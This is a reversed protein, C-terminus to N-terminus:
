VELDGQEEQQDEVAVQNSVVLVGQVVLRVVEEV